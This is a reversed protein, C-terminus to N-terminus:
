PLINHSCSDDIPFRQGLLDAFPEGLLRRGYQGFHAHLWPEGGNQHAIVWRRMEIDFAFLLGAIRRSNIDVIRFQRRIRGLCIQQGQNRLFIGIGLNVANENLQRKGFMDIALDHKVGDRGLLVGIPKMGIIKTTQHFAFGIRSAQVGLPTM